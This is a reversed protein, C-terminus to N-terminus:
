AVRIELNANRFMELRQRNQLPFASDSIQFTEDFDVFVLNYTGNDVKTTVDEILSIPTFNITDRKCVYRMRFQYFPNSRLTAENYDDPRTNPESKTHLFEVSPALSSEHENRTDDDLFCGTTKASSDSQSLESIIQSIVNYRSMGQFNHQNTRNQPNSLVRLENQSGTTALTGLVETFYHDMNLLQLTRIIGVRNGATLIYVPVNKRLCTELLRTWAARQLPTGFTFLALEDIHNQNVFSFRDTIDINVGDHPGLGGRMLRKSVHVRSRGRSRTKVHSRGRSKVRYVRKLSRKNKTIMHNM